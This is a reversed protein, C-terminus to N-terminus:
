FRSLVFGNQDDSTSSVHCKPGEALTRFCGNWPEFYMGRHPDLCYFTHFFAILINSSSLCVCTNLTDLLFLPKGSSVTWLFENTEPGARRNFFDSLYRGHGNALYGGDM